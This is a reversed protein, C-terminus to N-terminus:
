PGCADDEFGVALLFRPYGAEALVDATAVLEQWSVEETASLVTTECAPSNSRGGAPETSNTSCPPDGAQVFAQQGGVPVLGGLRQELNRDDIRGPKM